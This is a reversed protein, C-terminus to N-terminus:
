KLLGRRRLEKEVKKLQAARISARKLKERGEIMPEAYGINQAETLPSTPIFREGTLYGMTRSAQEMGAYPTAKKEYNFPSKDIIGRAELEGGLTELGSGAALKGLETQWNTDQGYATKGSISSRATSILPNGALGVGEEGMGIVDTVPERMTTKMGMGAPFAGYGAKEMGASIAQKAIDPVQGVLFKKSMYNPAQDEKFEAEAGINRSLIGPLKSKVPAAAIAKPVRTSARYGWGGFPSFAKVTRLLGPFMGPDAYNFLVDSTKQAALRPSLGQMRYEAYVAAKSADDWVGALKKGAKNLGLSAATGLLEGKDAYKLKEAVGGTKQALAKGIDKVQPMFEGGIRDPARALGMDILERQFDKKTVAGGAANKFLVTSEDAGGLVKRAVNAGRSSAGGSLAALLTDGKINQVHYGPRAFLRTERIHSVVPNNALFEGTKGLKSTSGRFRAGTEKMLKDAIDKTINGAALEKQINAKISVEGANKLGNLMPQFGEIYKKFEEPNAKFEAIREAPLENIRTSIVNNAADALKVKTRAINQMFAERQPADLELIVKNLKKGAFREGERLLKSGEFNGIQKGAVALGRKGLFEGGEGAVKKFAEETIGQSLALEKLMKGGSFQGLREAGEQGVKEVLAQKMFQKGFAEAAERKMGSKLAMKTGQKVLNKAATGGGFTVLTGPDTLIDAAVNRGFDKTENWAKQVDVEKGPTIAQLGINGLAAVGSIPMGVTEFATNLGRAGPTEGKSLWKHYDEANVGPASTDLRSATGPAWDINPDLAAMAAHRGQAGTYDLIKLGTDIASGTAKGILKKGRAYLSPKDAREAALVSRAVTAAEPSVERKILDSAAQAPAPPMNASASISEIKGREYPLGRTAAQSKLERNRKEQFYDIAQQESAADLTTGARASLEGRIEAILQAREEPTLAM